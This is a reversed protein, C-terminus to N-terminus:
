YAAANRCVFFEYGYWKSYKRHMAMEVDLGDFMALADPSDAYKPRLERLRKKMPTYYDDWWARRPLTFHGLLEYGCDAVTQANDDVPRIDPYEEQWFSRVEAPPDDSLWCVETAALFGGPKLLRRCTSLASEFGMIYLSGEAWILDFVGDPFDMETMSQRMVHVRGVLGADVVKRSLADLAWDFVDLAVIHGNTLKALEMTQGGTGCGIDLALPREPLPGLMSFARRTATRSGPGQRPLAGYLDAMVDHGTDADDSM